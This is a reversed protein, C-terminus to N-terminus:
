LVVELWDCQDCLMMFAHFGGQDQQSFFVHGWCSSRHDEYLYHLRKAVMTM